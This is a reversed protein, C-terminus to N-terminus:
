PSYHRIKDLQKIYEDNVIEIDMKDLVITNYSFNEQIYGHTM